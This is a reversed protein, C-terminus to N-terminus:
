MNKHVLLSLTLEAIAKVVPRLEEKTIQYGLGEELYNRVMAIM